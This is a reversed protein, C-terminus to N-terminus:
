LAGRVLPYYFGQMKTGACSFLHLHFPGPDLRLKGKGGKGGRGKGERSRAKVSSLMPATWSNEAEFYKTRIIVSPVLGSPEAPEALPTKRRRLHKECRGCGLILWGQRLQSGSSASTKMM